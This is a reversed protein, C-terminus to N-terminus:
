KKKHNQIMKLYKDKKLKLTMHNLFKKQNEPIVIYKHFEELDEEADKTKYHKAEKKYQNLLTEIANLKKGYMMYKYVDNKVREVFLYRSTVEYRKKAEVERMKELHCIKAYEKFDIGNYKYDFPLNILFDIIALEVFRSRELGMEGRILEIIDFMNEELTTSIIKRKRKGM